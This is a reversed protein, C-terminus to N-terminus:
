DRIVEKLNRQHDIEWTNYNGDGDFDQISLARAKFSNISAEIIEIRYVAQGGKDITLETEYGIDELNSAYKAHTFFYNKQYSYLSNLATKAEIARAQVVAQTQNPLVLYILIGIICLVILIETLSYGKLWYKEHKKCPINKM